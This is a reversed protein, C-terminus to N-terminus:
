GWTQCDLPVWNLEEPTVIGHGLFSIGLREAVQRIRETLDLDTLSPELTGGPHNHFLFFGSPRLSLLRAFLEVPDFNVHTRVGREVLHFSGVGRDRYVPVFGLWEQASLRLSDDIQRHAAMRLGKPRLAPPTQARLRHLSYRRGLEFAALIRAQAAPGLGDIGQLHALGSTELACFFAREQENESLTQGPRHLLAMALGLSGVRPPGSHILLAVCERLSLVHAGQRLCRERPRESLPTALIMAIASNQILPVNKPAFDEIIKKFEITNKFSM